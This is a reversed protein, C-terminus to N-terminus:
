AVNPQLVQSYAQQMLQAVAQYSYKREAEQHMQEADFRQQQISILAALLADEDESPVLMGNTPNVIEAVGGVASAIMPTGTSLSEILVCPLNEFRSPLVFVDCFSLLAHVGEADQAGHFHVSSAFDFPAIKEQYPRANGDSVVHLEVDAQQLKLRRFARLLLNFNKQAEDLSSVHLFRFVRKKNKNSTSFLTTDIANPIVKMPTDIGYRYMAAALDTSVPLVLDVRKGIWNLWFSQWKSPQPSAQEHYCTWHETMVLPIKFRWKLMLGIFGIPYMVSAHILDPKGFRLNSSAKWYTRFILFYNIFFHLIPWNNKPIYFVQENFAGTQTQCEIHQHQDSLVVYILEVAAIHAAAKAQQQVFNGETPKHKSPYWSSLFLVKPKM